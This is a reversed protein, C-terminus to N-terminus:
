KNQSLKKFHEEVSESYKTFRKLYKKCDISQGYNEYLYIVADPKLVDYIDKSLDCWYEHDQVLIRSRAGVPAKFCSIKNKGIICPM